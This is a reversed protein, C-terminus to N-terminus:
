AKPHFELTGIACNLVLWGLKWIDNARELIFDEQAPFLVKESSAKSWLSPTELITPDYLSFKCKFYRQGDKPKGL